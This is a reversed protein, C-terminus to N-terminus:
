RRRQGCNTLNKGVKPSHPMRRTPIVGVISKPTNKSYNRLNQKAAPPIYDPSCAKQIKRSCWGRALSAYNCCENCMNRLTLNRPNTHKGAVFRCFSAADALRLGHDALAPVVYVARSWKGSARARRLSECVAHALVLLEEIPEVTAAHWIGRAVHREAGPEKVRGRRHRPVVQVVQEDVLSM